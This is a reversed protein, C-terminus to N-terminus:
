LLIKELGAKRAPGKAIGILGIDDVQLERLVGAAKGLQGQGGDIVLLDPLVAEGEKLAACM